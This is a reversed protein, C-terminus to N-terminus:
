VRRRNQLTFVSEPEFGSPKGGMRMLGGLVNNNIIKIIEMVLGKEWFLLGANDWVAANYICCFLIVLRVMVKGFSVM